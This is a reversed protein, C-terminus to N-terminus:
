APVAVLTNQDSTQAGLDQALGVVAQDIHRLSHLATLLRRDETDPHQGDGILRDVAQEAGDLLNAAPQVTATDRHDLVAALAEINGRIREAAATVLGALAPDALAPHPQGASRALTRGYHDCATFVRLGHRASGRGAVGAIGRTRPKASTRVQQLQEDLERAQETLNEASALPTPVAAEVLDGLTALFSRAGDTITTRTSTPLVLMAVLVGIAAGIATEEIRLVLLGVSFQGLLGYLLALMTTIWFIMLSYAVQILYFGFFLCVFILALSWPTNGGVASAVLVGAPVGAATGILRQWGKTLTEGRSTTGSFTVFAAIVAWYWRSSSLLEGAM